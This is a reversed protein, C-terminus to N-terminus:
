PRVYISSGRAFDTPGGIAAGVLMSGVGFVVAVAGPGVIDFCPKSKCSEKEGTIGGAIAGLGFGLGAGALTSRVYHTLKIHRIEGRQFVRGAKRGGAECTLSDDTVTYVHCTHGGHDTTLHVGTHPPLAQVRAWNSGALPTSAPAAAGQTYAPLCVLTSLSLLLVASLSQKSM